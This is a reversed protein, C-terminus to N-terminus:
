YENSKAKEIEIGVSTTNKIVDLKEIRLKIKKLEALTNDTSGDNLFILKYHIKSQNIKKILKLSNKFIFQDCNFCPILFTFVKKNM